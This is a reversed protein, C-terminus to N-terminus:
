LTMITLREEENMSEPRKERSQMEEIYSVFFKGNRKLEELARNGAESNFMGLEFTIVGDIMDKTILTNIVDLTKTGITADHKESIVLMVVSFGEEECWNVIGDISESSIQKGTESTLVLVIRKNNM